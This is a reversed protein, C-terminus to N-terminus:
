NAFKMGAAALHAKQKEWDAPDLFFMSAVFDTRLNPWQAELRQVMREAQDQQGSAQYASALYLLSGVNHELGEQVTREVIEITTDYAGVHYSSFAYIRERVLKIPDSAAVKDPANAAVADEFRGTFHAILAYTHAIYGDDPTADYAAQALEEALVYDNSAWAVHASTAIVWSDEADLAEAKQLLITSEHLYRRSLGGGRTLDALVALSMAATAYGRAFEPDRDIATKSLVIAVKHRDFDLSPYLYSRATEVLETASMGEVDISLDIDGTVLDSVDKPWDEQPGDMGGTPTLELILWGIACAILAGILIVMRMSTKPVTTDRPMPRADWMEFQLGCTMPDVFIRIPDDAGDGEYYEALKESLRAFAWTLKRAADEESRDAYFKAIVAERSGQKARGALDEDVLFRLLKEQQKALQFVQSGCVRGTAVRIVDPAIRYTMGSSENPSPM